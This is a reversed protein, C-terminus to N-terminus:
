STGGARGGLGEGKDVPGALRPGGSRVNISLAWALGAGLRESRNALGESRNGFLQGSGESRSALDRM